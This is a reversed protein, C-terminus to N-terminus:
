NCYETQWRAFYYDREMMIMVGKKNCHCSGSTSLPNSNVDGLISHRSFHCLKLAVVVEPIVGEIGDLPVLFVFLEVSINGLGPWLRCAVLDFSNM